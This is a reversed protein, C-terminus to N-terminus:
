GHEESSDAQGPEHSLVLQWSNSLAIGVLMLAGTALIVAAAQGTGVIIRVAGAAAVVLLGAHYVAARPYNLTGARFARRTFPVSLAFVGVAVGVQAIGVLRSTTGALALLSVFLVTVFSYFASRARGAM